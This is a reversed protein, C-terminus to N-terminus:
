KKVAVLKFYYHDHKVSRNNLYIQFKMVLAEIWSLNIHAHVIGDEEWTIIDERIDDKWERLMAPTIGYIEYWKNFM